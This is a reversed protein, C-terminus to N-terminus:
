FYIFVDTTLLQIFIRLERQKCTPGTWKYGEPTKSRPNWADEEGHQTPDPVPTAGRRYAGEPRTEAAENSPKPHELASLGLDRRRRKVIEM